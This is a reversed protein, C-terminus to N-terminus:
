RDAVRTAQRRSVAQLSSRKDERRDAFLARSDGLKRDISTCTPSSWSEQRSESCPTTARTRGKKEGMDVPM